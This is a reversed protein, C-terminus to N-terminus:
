FCFACAAVTAFSLFRARPLQRSEQRAKTQRGLITNLRMRCSGSYEAPASLAVRYRGRLSPVPRLSAASAAIDEVAKASSRDLFSYLQHLDRPPRCDSNRLHALVALLVLVM